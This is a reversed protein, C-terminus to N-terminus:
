YWIEMRLGTKDTEPAGAPLRYPSRRLAEKAVALGVLADLLDDLAAARGLFDTWQLLRELEPVRPHLVRKREVIGEDEHKPRLNQGALRLWALEPHFEIIKEQLEPTMAENAQKLKKVIGWVPYGAGVNRALKHLRQFEKANEAPLCERPPTFFVAAPNHDNERLFGRAEQDCRRIQKGSPIGIPIDVAVRQCDATLALVARFDPCVALCPVELCPWTRSRAVIWGGKCADVGALM